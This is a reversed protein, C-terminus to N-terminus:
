KWTGLLRRLIILEGTHYANHDAVLLAERLLNQGDGWPLPEIRGASDADNLLQVFARRDAHIQDIANHWSNADPPTPDKPWYTDPWKRPKYPGGTGDSNRSFDLIDRQAIRIHEVIQWASYPLNDPVTGRLAVPFGEVAKEFSAHAQKGEFLKNLQQKLADELPTTM